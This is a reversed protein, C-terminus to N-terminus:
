PSQLAPAVYGEASNKNTHSYDVERVVVIGFKEAGNRIGRKSGEMGNLFGMVVIDCFM